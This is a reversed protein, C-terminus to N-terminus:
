WKESLLGYINRLPIMKILCAVVFVFDAATDMKAGFESVTNTRRAVTGDIIDTIGATVYVLYFASTPFQCFLLAISCIIRIVTIINAM